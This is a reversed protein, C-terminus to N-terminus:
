TLVKYVLVKICLVKISKDYMSEVISLGTNKSYPTTDVGKLPDLLVSRQATPQRPPPCEGEPFHGQGPHGALSLLNSM